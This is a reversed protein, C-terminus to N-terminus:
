HRRRKGYFDAMSSVVWEQEDSTLEPFVPLALTNRSLSESVPFDGERYGLFSFCKQLHLSLPYYVRTTIGKEALFAQLADRDKVNVVYQHYIHFNGEQELPPIVLDLLDYEGFLLKYREAVLRREQQWEDFHRLKVRLVAAQIADLRSNLGVEEHFYTSGAGHVRLRSLRESFDKDGSVVMGGDGYAGLNKTPFFSFCGAKGLTGARMLRDDIKRWSGFAQAADEVIPINREELSKMIGEFPVMQGFLHVPIFAKTRPTIKEMVKECDINFTVPDVDAFVPKAGLRTICSATAFFSFPTTLVEDGEGINLAMLALVLADSGSACGIAHTIQLYSEVEREFSKVQPGLIFYQSQLVDTLADSIEDKIRAYNRTLDLT